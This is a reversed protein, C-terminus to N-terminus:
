IKKEKLQADIVQPIRSRLVFPSCGSGYDIM